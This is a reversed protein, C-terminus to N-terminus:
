AAFAPSCTGCIDAAWRGFQTMSQATSTVPVFVFGVGRAMLAAFLMMAFVLVLETHLILRIRRRSLEDLVPLEEHKVAKRWRLFQVTPYISLLGVTVFLGIKLLFPASAFYYAPGKETFFVRTFGVILLVGASTGYIADMQLLSRASALTLEGRLLTLEVMLAGVLLFAAAHHLFAVTASASM